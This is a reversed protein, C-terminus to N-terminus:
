SQRLNTYFQLKLQFTTVTIYNLWLLFARPGQGQAWLEVYWGYHWGLHDENFDYVLRGDEDAAGGRLVGAVLPRMLNAMCRTEAAIAARPYMKGEEFAFKASRVSNKVTRAGKPKERVRKTSPSAPNEDNDFAALVLPPEGGGGGAGGRKGVSASGGRNEKKNVHAVVTVKRGCFQQDNHGSPLCCPFCRLNKHGSKKNSRLYQVQFDEPHLCDLSWM